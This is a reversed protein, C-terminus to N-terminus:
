GIEERRGPSRLLIASSQAVSFVKRIYTVAVVSVEHAWVGICLLTENLEEMSM